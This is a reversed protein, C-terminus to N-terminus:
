HESQSPSMDVSDTEDRLYDGLLNGLNDTYESYESDLKNLSEKLDEDDYLRDIKGSLLKMRFVSDALNEQNVCHFVKELISASRNAKILKLSTITDKAFQGYGNVFYQNFGGNSVEEDLIAIHYAVKEKKPLSNIHNYWRDDVNTLWEDRIGEVASSYYLDILDINTMKSELKDKDNLM